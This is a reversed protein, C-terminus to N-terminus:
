CRLWLNSECVVAVRSGTPRWKARWLAMALQLVCPRVRNKATMHLDRRLLHDDKAGDLPYCTQIRDLSDNDM